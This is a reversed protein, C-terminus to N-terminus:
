YSARERMARGEEGVMVRRVGKEVGERELEGELGLWVRWVCSVCRANVRQDGFGGLMGMVWCSRARVVWLFPPNSNVLGWGMEEVEQKTLLVMSGLSVYISSEEGDGGAMAARAEELSGKCNENIALLVSALDWSSVHDDTIGDNLPLFTFEPHRYPHPSNFFTHAITISFGNQHLFTALHLMPNIHGQYPCPVMPLRRRKVRSSEM